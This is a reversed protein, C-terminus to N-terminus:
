LVHTVHVPHHACVETQVLPEHFHGNKGGGAFHFALELPGHM